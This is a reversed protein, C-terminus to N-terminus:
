FRLRLGASVTLYRSRDDFNTWHYAGELVAGYRKNFPFDGNVGATFGYNTEDMGGGKQRYVGAGAFLGTSGFPEAFRYDVVGEIHEVQGRTNTRVLTPKTAPAVAPTTTVFTLKSDMEGAKIKFRTSPDLAISYYIEKVSSGFNWGSTLPNTSDKNANKDGGDPRRSVGGFAIGLENTQALAPVTALSLLVLALATKTM